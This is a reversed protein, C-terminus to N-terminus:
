SELETICGIKKVNGNSNVKEEALTSCGESCLALILHCTQAAAGLSKLGFVPCFMLLFSVSLGHELELIIQQTVGLKSYFQAAITHVTIVCNLFLIPCILPLVM